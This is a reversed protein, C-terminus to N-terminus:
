PHRVASYAQSLKCQHTSFYKTKFQSGSKPHESKLMRGPAKQVGLNLETSRSPTWNQLFVSKSTTIRQCTRTDLHFVCYHCIFVAMLLITRQATHMLFSTLGTRILESESPALFTRCSLAFASQNLSFSRVPIGCRCQDSALSKARLLKGASAQFALGAERSRGRLLRSGVGLLGFMGTGPGECVGVGASSRGAARGTKGPGMVKVLPLALRLRGGSRRGVVGKREAGTM